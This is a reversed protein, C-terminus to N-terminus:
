RDTEIEVRHVKAIRAPYTGQIGGSYFINVTDGVAPIPWSTKGVLPVEIKDASKSENSDAFPEVLLYNDTVELVKACFSVIDVPETVPPDCPNTVAFWNGESQIYCDNEGNIVYFFGPWEGGTFAFSYVEGGNNDGPSQGEKVEIHKYSLNDFWARLFDINTGEISWTTTKGGVHHTIDIITVSESIVTAVVKQSNWGCSCLSFICVLALLLAILKKM